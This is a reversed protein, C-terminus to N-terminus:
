DLSFGFVNIGTKYPVQLAGNQKQQILALYHSMKHAQFNTEDPVKDVFKSARLMSKLGQSLAYEKGSMLIVEEGLHWYIDLNQLQLPSLAPVLPVMDLPTVIRSVNLHSFQKAGLVNTVKPQGFTTSGQLNYGEKELYMALILAVAGGLSHGTTHIPQTKSLLSKADLYVAKAAASFGQHLQIGILDDPKFQIDLDLLVNEFNSTGRIVLLQKGNKKTLFYSVKTETLENYRQLVYGMDHLSGAVQPQPLYAIDSLKANQQIAKFDASAVVSLSISALLFMYFIRMFSLRSRGM